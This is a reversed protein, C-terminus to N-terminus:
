KLKELDRELDWSISEAEDMARKTADMLAAKGKFPSVEGLREWIGHVRRSLKRAQKCRRNLTEANM